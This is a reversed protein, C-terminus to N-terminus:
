GGFIMYFWVGAVERMYYNIRLSLWGTQAPIGVATIGCDAAMLGARFLHYESSVLGVSDPRAGTKEEILDLSFDLNEMTSTSKNEIWIRESAIGMETLKNYICQGESIGEDPGQGGSAICITNPNAQLYDYAAQIRESLTLSPHTGNVKAGLVVIYKCSTESQGFSSQVIFAGTCIAAALGWLVVSLLVTRLSKALM